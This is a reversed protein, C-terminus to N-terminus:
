LAEADCHYIYNKERGKDRNRERKQAGGGRSKEKQRMTGARM